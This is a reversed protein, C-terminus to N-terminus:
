CGPKEWPFSALNAQGAAFIDPNFALPLAFGREREEGGVGATGIHVITRHFRGALGLPPIVAGAPPVGVGGREGEAGHQAHQHVASVSIM